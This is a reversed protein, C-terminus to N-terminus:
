FVTPIFRPESASQHNKNGKYSTRGGTGPMKESFVAFVADGNGCGKGNKCEFIL